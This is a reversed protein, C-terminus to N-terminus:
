ERKRKWREVSKREIHEWVEKGYKDEQLRVDVGYFCNRVKRINNSM